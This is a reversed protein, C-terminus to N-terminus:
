EEFNTERGRIERFQRSRVIADIAENIRYGGGELRAKIEDLLPEDSLLVARGLAYGLLKRNFQKLFADRRTTLLYDRLGTIGEIETGDAVNAKADIPRGGLDVDRRRGIADFQELSFGYADIRSHCSACRPDSTHKETLQRVTLTETAEDQPLLPVDKPPRPLKDGLLAEAVWNGRLIPSTRSAGSQKSLTTAQGLIGGRSFAKMGDVRRWAEGTINPIGYHVALAENLFTHDADLISLVSRNGQFLDAFFRISEEYMEGRLGAFTPFHRESKEDLTDFDRIHLWQCAFEIAMRRARDDSTLRRAHAALVDPDRLRGAAAATMLPADPTSSTLFYSLRTALEWDNLPVQALAPGPTESRYLFHPSIFVRALVLRLAEEHPLEKGRLAQYLHRFGEGESATLPRRYARAAFRLLADLHRPESAVLQRRFEAAREEIPKRLPEFARPDGDQTAYQWLQEFADVLTLADQSVFRLQAWLRDLRERRTDDLMLRVLPEDERHFLTLTVAEDVPVIKQYCLAAPFFQRFADFGAEYRARARSGDQVIIPASHALRRNDAPWAGLEGKEVFTTAWRHTLSEPKVTLVRMQVSADTGAAPDLTGNTVFEAGAALEGPLRIEIVSPARTALSGADVAAGGEVSRGFSAEDLGWSTDWGGKGPSNAKVKPSFLPGGFASLERYLKAQPNEVTKPAKPDRATLSVPAPVDWAPPPGTLLSQLERALRNKVTSDAAVQWQALLSQAPITREGANVAVEPQTYFYWVASRGFRDARPNGAGIDGAVESAFDWVRGLGGMSTLKFNVTTLDCGAEGRSGIMLSVLDGPRLAVNELPEIKAVSRGYTLTGTGLVNRTLGRRLEITWRVGNGCGTHAQAVEAEIRFRDAEPSRWGIVVQQTASPLVAIGRPEIVGPIRVTQASPNALIAPADSEGWGRVVPQGSHGSIPKKIVDADAVAAPVGVGLYDFWAHVAEDSVGYDVALQARDSRGTAEAQAAAALAGAAQAFVVSRRRKFEHGVERVDRLLLDPRGPAVIRPRNWVVTDDQSGDGADTAALYITVEGEANAPPLPLRLEQNATLPNVAEMWTRPGGLKGIHGVTNFRWLTKQWAAIAAVVAAPDDADTARWLGRIEDLSSSPESSELMAWLAGLYRPSLGREGAVGAVNKSGSRLAKREALAAAVYREVPLRGGTNTETLIGQLNVKSGGHGDTYEAYLARIKALIEETWDRRSSGAFFEFGDPLLVAHGSIAKGADLYKTVLSPSMVLAQGTNMFGEGAAGDIPFEKAPDLSAVGTLDRVTYTYEANSLRRLVVPGPDGARERALAGLTRDIWGSLRAIEEVSPQPEDAPPMERHELQETIKKWILPHRRIDGMSVFRELDLEGKQKSTSHCTVCYTKLLPRVTKEFDLELMAMANDPARGCSLAPFSAGLFLGVVFRSLM